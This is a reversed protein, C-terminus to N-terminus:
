QLTAQTKVTDQDFIELGGLTPGHGRKVMIYKSFYFTAIVKICGSQPSSPGGDLWKRNSFGRLTCCSLNPKTSQGMFQLTVEHFRGGTRQRQTVPEMQLFVEQLGVDARSLKM